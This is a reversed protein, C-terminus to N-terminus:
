TKKEIKEMINFKYSTTKSHRINQIKFKKRRGVITALIDNLYHSTSRITDCRSTRIM